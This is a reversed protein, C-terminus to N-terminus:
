VRYLRQANDHLLQRQQVEPRSQVIQRLAAVWAALEGGLRCVPWDGGFVVRDPGFADLCHNVVPALDDATWQPQPAKAVVGSIKCTVHPQKALETM